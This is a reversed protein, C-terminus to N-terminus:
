WIFLRNPSQIARFRTLLVDFCLQADNRLYCSAFRQCIEELQLAKARKLEIFRHRNCDIANILELRLFVVLCCLLVLDMSLTSNSDCVLHYFWTASFFTHHNSGLQDLNSAEKCSEGVCVLLSESIQTENNGHKPWPLPDSSLVVFLLVILAICHLLM